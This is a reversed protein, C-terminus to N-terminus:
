DVISATITPPTVPQASLPRSLWRQYQELHLAASRSWSFHRCVEPLAPRVPTRAAQALADAISRPDDPDAWAVDREDLYGTFPEMRSVAVAAGCALAELVVLGFGERISPFAVVDALRMLAPLEADPLVGTLVVDSGSGVRLGSATLAEHFSAQYASHDLLSAGGVIAWQAAPHDHRFLQFARLLNLTNKRAEIGGISVILPAGPRLGLRQATSTDLAAPSATFRALDVGNCVLEARVEYERLLHQQWLPSVCFVLNARRIARRQLVNVPESPWHDIHHVTAAYGPIAGLESLTALANAGIGDQAHLVDFADARGAISLHEVYADIRTRVMSELDHGHHDVPVLEFRHSVSRFLQQTPHAVAMVTVEHGLRHLTDALELTHIVGGRPNVSHMLFGIRLPRM